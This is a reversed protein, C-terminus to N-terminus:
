SALTYSFNIPQKTKIETADGAKKIKLIFMYTYKQLQNPLLFPKTAAACLHLRSRNHCLMELSVITHKGSKPTKLPSIIILTLVSFPLFPFFSAYHAIRCYYLCSICHYLIKLSHVTCINSLCLHM